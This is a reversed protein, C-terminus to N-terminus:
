DESLWQYLRDYEDVMNQITFSNHVFEKGRQGFEERRQRNDLAVSLADTLQARDSPAVLIGTVGNEVLEPTGGVHTAVVCLGSAMAEIISQSLGETLSPQVFLDSVSLLRAVDNRFGSFVTRESIDLKSALKQLPELLPGAGALLLYTDPRSSSVSQFAHLLDDLGKGTVLRGTYILLSANAPIGLDARVSDRCAVESFEDLRIGTHVSVIHRPKIWLRSLLDRRLTKSVTVVVDPLYMAPWYLLNRFM